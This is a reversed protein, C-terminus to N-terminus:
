NSATVPELSASITEVDARLRSSVINLVVNDSEICMLPSRAFYMLHQEDRAALALSRGPTAKPRGGEQAKNTDHLSRFSQKIDAGWNSPLAVFLVVHCCIGLNRILLVLGSMIM